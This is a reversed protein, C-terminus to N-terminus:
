RLDSWLAVYYALCEETTTLVFSPGPALSSTTNTDRAAGAGAGAGTWDSGIEGLLAVVGCCV